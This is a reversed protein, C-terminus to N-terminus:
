LMWAKICLYHLRTAPDDLMIPHTSIDDHVTAWVELIDHSSICQVETLAFRLAFRVLAQYATRAREIHGAALLGGAYELHQTLAVSVAEKHATEQAFDMVSYAAKRYSRMFHRVTGEVNLAKAPLRRAAGPVFLEILAAASHFYPAEIDGVVGGELQAKITGYLHLAFNAHTRLFTANKRIETCINYVQTVPDKYWKYINDILFATNAELAAAMRPNMRPEVPVAPIPMNDEVSVGAAEARSNAEVRAAVFMRENYERATAVANMHAEQTIASMAQIVTAQPQAGFFKHQTRVEIKTTNGTIRKHM